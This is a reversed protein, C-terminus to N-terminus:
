AEIAGAVEEIFIHTVSGGQIIRDRNLSKGQLVGINNSEEFNQFLIVWLLYYIVLDSRM